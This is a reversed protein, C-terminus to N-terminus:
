GQAVVCKPTRSKLKKPPSKQSKRLFSCLKQLYTPTLIVTNKSFMESIQLFFNIKLNPIEPYINPIKPEIKNDTPTLNVPNKLVNWIKQSFNQNKSKSKHIDKPIQPKIMAFAVWPTKNTDFYGPGPSLQAGYKFQDPQGEMKTQRFSTFLFSFWLFIIKYFSLAFCLTTLWCHAPAAYQMKEQLWLQAVISLSLASLTILLVLKGALILLVVLIHLLFLKFCQFSWWWWNEGENADIM